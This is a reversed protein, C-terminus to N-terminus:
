EEKSKQAADLERKLKTVTVSGLQSQSGLAGSASAGGGQALSVSEAQGANSPLFVLMWGDAGPAAPHLLPPIITVDPTPPAAVFGGSVAAAVICQLRSLCLVILVLLLCVPLTAPASFVRNRFNQSGLEFLGLSQITSSVAM